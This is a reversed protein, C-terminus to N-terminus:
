IKTSNVANHGDYNQDFRSWLEVDTCLTISSLHCCCYEQRMCCKWVESATLTPSQKCAPRLFWTQLWCFSFRHKNDPDAKQWLLNMESAHFKNPFTNLHRYQSSVQFKNKAFCLQIKVSMCCCQNKHRYNTLSHFFFPYHVTTRM